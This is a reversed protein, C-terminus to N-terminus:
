GPLRDERTTFRGGVRSLRENKTARVGREASLAGNQSLLHPGSQSQLGAFIVVKDQGPKDEFGDVQMRAYVRGNTEKARSIFKRGNRSHFRNPIAEGSM